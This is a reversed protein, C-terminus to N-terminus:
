RQCRSCFFSSRGAQVIRVVTGGCGPRPCDLGARGYVAFSHQFYGPSGDAAQYDRLSSGGAAIAEELVSRIAAVLARARAGAGGTRTALTGARRRPSLAARHLAECVYINGLGAVLRQDLLAAKLTTKKGALAAALFEPTLAPGLPEVGLDRFPPQTELAGAELLLMYGFRRADNYRIRAGSSMEFVVHDHQRVGGAEHLFEGALRANRGAPQIFFRGSMGLHMALVWGDDLFALLYKARRELREVLRGQLRAAFREPLPFRLDSRAQEVGAFRYGAMVPALGRRVTEVEPLEPM